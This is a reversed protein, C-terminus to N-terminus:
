AMLAAAASKLYYKLYYTSSKPLMKIDKKETLTECLNTLM